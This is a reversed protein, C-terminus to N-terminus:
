YVRPDLTRLDESPPPVGVRGDGGHGGGRQTHDVGPHWLDKGRYMFPGWDTFVSLRLFDVRKDSDIRPTPTVIKFLERNPELNTDM